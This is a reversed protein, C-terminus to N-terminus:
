VAARTDTHSVSVFSKSGGEFVIWDALDTPITMYMDCRPCEFQLEQQVYDLFHAALLPYGDAAAVCGLLAAFETHDDSAPLAELALHRARSM